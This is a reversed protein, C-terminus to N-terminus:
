NSGENDKIFNNLKQIISNLLFIPIIKYKEEGINAVMSFGMIATLENIVSKAMQSTAKEIIAKEIEPTLAIPEQTPEKPEQSNKIEQFDIKKTM